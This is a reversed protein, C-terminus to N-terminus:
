LPDQANHPYYWGGFRFPSEPNPRHHDASERHRRVHRYGLRAWSMTTRTGFSPITNDHVHTGHRRRAQYTGLRPRAQYTDLPQMFHHTMAHTTSLACTTPTFISTFSAVGRMSVLLGHWTPSIPKVIAGTYSLLRSRVLELSNFRSSNVPVQLLYSVYWLPSISDCKLGSKQQEVSDVKLIVVLHV